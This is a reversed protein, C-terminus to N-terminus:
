HSFFGKTRNLGLAVTYYFILAPLHSPTPPHTLSCGRLLLTYSLLNRSPFGSFPIVTLIYIFFHLKFFLFNFSFSEPREIKVSLVVGWPLPPNDELNVKCNFKERALHM